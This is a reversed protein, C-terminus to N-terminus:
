LLGPWKQKTLFTIKPTPIECIIQSFFFFFSSHVKKMFNKLLANDTATLQFKGAKKDQLEYCEM